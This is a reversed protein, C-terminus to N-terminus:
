GHTALRRPDHLVAAVDALVRSGLEGDVLRHDFSLALTTVQRPVVEGRHVWPRPGIAGLALIAAEGPNLIPTGTDIGFVGINTVTLTGGGLDAPTTRGERATTVLGDLAAALRPLSLSQADKINPVLLGRPTAAAIGLNVRHKLVIEQREEDWSANIEPHRRVAFLLARVALLLPSVRVGAFEPDKRLREVLKMTRTVDVTVFETVHPAGFASETMARATAKRVASAPIRTEHVPVPVQEQSETPVPVPVAEAAATRVDERTIDGHRGSPRVRGLDVGLDRALKRVPPKAMARETGRVPVAPAAPVAPAPAQRRPRRSTPAAAAGYGVLVPQRAPEAAPPEAPAGVAEPPAVTIIVEGVDVTTGEPFRLERVVGAFPVPLEVMAKATEIECVVQGDTVTDGVGVHWRAIEADQLGEGVDPLRFEQYRVMTDTM